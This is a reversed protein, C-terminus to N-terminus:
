WRRWGRYYFFSPGSYFYFRPGWYYPPPPPPPYYGARYPARQYPGPGPAPRRDYDEQSATTFVQPNNSTFTVPSELRFTLMTEPYVVAPRGRTALIGITGVVAGGIAGMGAGFGGDAAAGIAAGLGTTAGLAAADRGVSTDGARNIFRTNVPIQQGDVLSIETIQLGISSTGKVHGAKQVEAVRGGVTQGRRAVVLGNVILPQALTATFADGPQNHDSSLPQDVRVTIWTGAPITMDSPAAAPPPAEAPPPAPHDGFKRWGQSPADQAVAIAFAFLSILCTTRMHEGPRM